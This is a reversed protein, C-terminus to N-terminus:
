LRLWELRESDRGHVVLRAKRAALNLALARGLGDTAGTVFVTREAM